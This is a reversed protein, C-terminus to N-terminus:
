WRVFTLDATEASEEVLEANPVAAAELLNSVVLPISSWSFAWTSASSSAAM